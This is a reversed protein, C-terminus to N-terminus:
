RTPVREVEAATESAAVAHDEELELLPTPAMLVDASPPAARELVREIVGEMQRERTRAWRPLSFWSAILLGIGSVALPFAPIMTLSAAGISGALLFGLAVVVFGFGLAVNTQADGKRTRLRVQYGRHSPEVTCRLNGNRWERSQGTSRVKGSADFTYRLDSVLLQWQADTLPADLHATRSVGVSLGMMRQPPPPAEMRDLTAAARAVFGPSLGAEEGIRTLEALTLGEDSALRRQASEQEEAARAFIARIETEDYRRESM